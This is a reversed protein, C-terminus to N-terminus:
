SLKEVAPMELGFLTLACTKVALKRVHLLSGDDNFLIRTHTHTHTHTLYIETQKEIKKSYESLM